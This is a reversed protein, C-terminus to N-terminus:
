ARKLIFIFGVKRTNGFANPIPTIREQEMELGVQLKLDQQNSKLGEKIPICDHQSLWLFYSDWEKRSELSRHEFRGKAEPRGSIPQTVHARHSGIYISNPTFSRRPEKQSQRQPRERAKKRDNHHCITPSASKRSSKEKEQVMRM